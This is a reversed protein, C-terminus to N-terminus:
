SAFGEPEPFNPFNESKMRILSSCIL